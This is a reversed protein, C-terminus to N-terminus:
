HLEVYKLITKRGFMDARGSPVDFGSDEIIFGEARAKAILDDLGSYLESPSRTYFCVEWRWITAWPSNDYHEIKETDYNWFTFFKEPYEGDESYSGQRGYEVGTEDLITKLKTWM